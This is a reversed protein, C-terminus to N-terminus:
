NNPAAITARQELGEQILLVDEDAFSLGPAREMRWYEDLSWAAMMVGSPSHRATGELVHGIEHAIVYALLAETFKRPVTRKVRDLFVVIREAKLFTVGLAHKEFTTYEQSFEVQPTGQPCNKMDLWIFKVSLQSFIAGVEAAPFTTNLDPPFERCIEVSYRAPKLTGATSACPVAVVALAIAISLKM